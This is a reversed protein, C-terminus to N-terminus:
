EMCQIVLATYNDQYQRNALLIKQEMERCMEGPTAQKLCYLIEDQKLVGGVGDSCLLLVDKDQLPFPRRLYDIDELMEMGLFQTLANKEPDKQAIEPDVSGQRITRLYGKHLLNHERNMRYLMDGRKLYLFSDGVSAYYLKENYIMCVVATSGGDGGLTQFVAEGAHIMSEYLQMALDQEYDMNMLETKLVSVATESAVKGDLMGGMGDAVISFLGKESIMTVDLANVFAFSDEQRERCGVGQLNTVQYSLRPHPNNPIVTTPFEVTPSEKKRKKKWPFFIM